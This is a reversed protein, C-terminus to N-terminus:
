RHLLPFISSYDDTWLRFGPRARAARFNRFRSEGADVILAWQAGLCEPESASPISEVIFAQKGTAAAAAAIVPELNLFLNTIHFAIIGRPKIHRFYIAFAERTLLHVPVADGSFADIALLDFQQSAERELALRADGLVMEIKAPTDDLFHFDRRAVALVQPDLEYFRVSDGAIGYAALTGAGLGVM